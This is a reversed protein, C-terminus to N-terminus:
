KQPFTAFLIFITLQFGLSFKALVKPNPYVYRDYLLLSKKSALVAQNPFFPLNV